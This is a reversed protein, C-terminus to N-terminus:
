AERGVLGGDDGQAEFAVGRSDDGFLHAVGGVMYFGVDLLGGVDEVVDPVVLLM